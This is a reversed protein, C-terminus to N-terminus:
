SKKACIQAPKIKPLIAKKNNRWHSWVSSQFTIPDVGAKKACIKVSEACLRYRKQTIAIEPAGLCMYIMHRDITIHEWMNQNHLNWFFATIKQGRLIKAIEEPSSAGLIAIAKRKHQGLGYYDGFELFRFADLINQEWTKLPSMAAVVGLANPLPIYMGTREQLDRCFIEVIESANAYWHEKDDDQVTSWVTLLNKNIIRKQKDM